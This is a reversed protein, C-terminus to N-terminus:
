TPRRLEMGSPPMCMAVLLGHLDQVIQGSNNIAKATSHPGGLTGLDTFTYGSANVQSASTLLVGAALLSISFLKANM